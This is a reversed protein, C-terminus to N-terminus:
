LLLSQQRLRLMRGSASALTDSEGRDRDCAMPLTLTAMVAVLDALPVALAAAVDIELGDLKSIAGRCLCNQCAGGRDPGDDRSSDETLELACKSSSQGVSLSRKVLRKAQCCQCSRSATARPSAASTPGYCNFPCVLLATITLLVYAARLM